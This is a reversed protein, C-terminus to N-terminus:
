QKEGLAAGMARLIGASPGNYGGSAQLSAMMNRVFEANIEVEDDDDQLTKSKGIFRMNSTELDADMEKMLQEMDEDDLVGEEAELNDFQDEESDIPHEVKKGTASRWFEDEDFVVHEFEEEDDDDSSDEEDSAHGGIDATDDAMFQEVKQVMKEVVDAQENEDAMPAGPLMSIDVDLYKEDDPSCLTESWTDVQQQTCPELGNWLDRLQQHQEENGTNDAENSLILAVGTLIKVGTDFEYFSQPERPLNYATVSLVPPPSFKLLRLM